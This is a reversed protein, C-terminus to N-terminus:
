DEAATTSPTTNKPHRSELSYASSARVPALTQAKSLLPDHTMPEGATFSAFSYKVVDSVPSKWATSARVPESTNESDKLHGINEDGATAPLMAYTPEWSPLSRAM